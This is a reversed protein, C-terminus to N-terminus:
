RKILVYGKYESRNQGSYLYIKYFYTGENLGNGDWNNKYDANKYVENGWRNVILLDVRDYREMGRIVFYDNYGDGNPTFVNPIHLPDEIVTITVTAENTFNGNEDRVRYTFTDEGFFGPNPMYRITGDPQPVAIGNRPADVIEISGLDLPSDDPIDNNLVPVDVPQNLGTEAEDNIAEPQTPAVVVTITAPNSTAGDLDEVIYDVTSEGLFLPEPTFTVTGDVNVEYVGEGPITVEKVQDGTVPDILSVTTPDLASHGPEDNELVNITVPVPQKTTARDDNATPPPVVTVTVTAENTVNGNEDKVQYTFTDEGVFDPDPTYRITGDPQPVATGNQPAAVIEISEPDLPSNDPVDNDLVPVDIPQGKITEVEDDVAEPQTPEVVVRITAPNSPVGDEDEVIYDVTSEGTFLPDPTFTVTGDDNVIYTGENPIAVEKVPDGTIPDILSVTSPDIPSHGPEDNELVDIVVPVSQKTTEEDDNATPPEVVTVTVTTEETPYGGGNRVIYTFTDEGIFDPDPTYRITGDPQPEATGNQPPTVIEVSSPNLPSDGEEDNDLVPIDVPQEKVTQATDDEGIPPIFVHITVMADDCYVGEGNEDLTERDCIRYQLTYTGSPTNPLVSVSGDESLVLPSGTPDDLRALTVNAIDAVVNRVTDNDLVNLVNEMGTRGNILIASVNDIAEIDVTYIAFIVSDINNDINPDTVDPSVAEAINSFSGVDSALVRVTFTASSGNDMTPITWRVVHDAATYTGGGTASVFDLGSPLSDIVDVNTATEPGNNIVTIEFDFEVGERVESLESTKTIALDAHACVDVYIDESIQTVGCERTGSVSYDGTETALYTRANAGPIAVGNFYWQYPELGEDPAILTAVCDGADDVQPPSMSENFSSIFSSMSFGGGQQVMSVTMRSDSRLTLTQPAGVQDNEFRYLYNGTGGIAIRSGIGHSEIDVDNLYVIDTPSQILIYSFYPLDVSHYGIYKSTQLYNSGACGGIPTVTSMDVECGQATGTYVIVPNTASIISSSYPSEGDGHFFTYHDGANALMTTATGIQSGDEDYNVVTVSTGPESAIVTTQESRITESTTADGKGRVVIYDTGLVRNPAVPSVVGDGCGGPADRWAGANAVVSKDATLLAGMDAFFLYGEGANLTVLAAGDLAVQTNNYLAMVSFVPKNQEITGFQHNLGEWNERYYGLRFASGPAESGFSLFSSNGKIYNDEYNEMEGPVQDSMINRLNVSVPRTSEIILGRDTYKTNPLNRMMEATLPLNDFRYLTPETSSVSLTTILTGDSKRVSVTAQSIGGAGTPETTLVLQNADSTFQWPAPAIYHRTAFQALANESLALCLFSVFLFCSLYRSCGKSYKKKM